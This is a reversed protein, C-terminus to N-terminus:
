IGDFKRQLTFNEAMDCNVDIWRHSASINRLSTVIIRITQTPENWVNRFDLYRGYNMCQNSVEIVLTVVITDYVTLRAEPFM